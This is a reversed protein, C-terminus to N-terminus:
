RNRWREPDVATAALVEDADWVNITSRGLRIQDVRRLGRRQAWSRFTDEQVGVLRAAQATTVRRM